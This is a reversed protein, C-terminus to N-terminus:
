FLLGVSIGFLFASLVILWLVDSIDVKAKFIEWDAKAKSFITKIKSM